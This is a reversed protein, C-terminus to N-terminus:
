KFQGALNLGAKLQHVGVDDDGRMMTCFEDYDIKGNNDKDVDNLIQEINELSLNQVEKLAMQLEDKTIFGSNDKDFHEFATKLNEEKNLKSLHITAALFEEYDITGDGDIDAGTILESLEAEVVPKKQKRLASRLEEVTITGSGDVDIGKFLQRLGTVEEVAMNKAIVKLAEKKLKNLNAFKKIRVAVASDMPSDSAVGNEKMWEHQLIEDATARRRPDQVLMKKVCDQAHQSIKPWPDSSFDLRGKLISDFIQQETDGWFPPVGSLLIYLIVGCSWIDAEKSYHRRLVEPAVYYASGVIDRYIEDGKFFVSLGFDTAKLQADESTDALLFNEPKLDRHIVGLSHCHAVVKVITRILTAADKESYHGRAVIRDFLEGGGCLEMVLHVTHKDEFAEKLTVIHPHGALHHMIQIERRVDEIDEPTSLKRKSISKCAYHLNTSKEVALRTTGFQGRGLTRGLTYLSHIDPSDKGL